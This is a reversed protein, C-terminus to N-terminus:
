KVFIWGNGAGVGGAAGWQPNANQWYAGNFHGQSLEGGGVMSGSWCNKFWWPSNTYQTACNTTGDTDNDVDYTTFKGNNHYSVLGPAVSGVPQTCGATNFTIQYTALDSFTFPCIYRQQIATGYDPSWETRLLGGPALPTWHKLGTYVVFSELDTGVEGSVRPLTNIANKWQLETFPKGRGGRLNSWVLTWGGGENTMDCYAQFANPASSPKLWYAGSAIGPRASLLAACHTAPNNPAEGLPFTGAPGPPGPPGPQGQPGEPGAPGTDGKPGQCALGLAVAAVFMGLAIRHM